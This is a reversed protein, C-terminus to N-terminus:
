GGRIPSLVELRDNEQLPTKQYETKPVFEENLAVAFYSDEYGLEQLADAITHSHELPTLKGNVVINM